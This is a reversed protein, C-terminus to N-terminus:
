RLWLYRQSTDRLLTGDWPFHKKNPSPTLTRAPIPTQTQTPTPSPAVGAIVGNSLGDDSWLGGENRAGVTVYYPQGYALNLGTRTMSTTASSVYTWAVVDRAGPTTGIAYRYQTIPSEPDSSSWSTSLTTLAGDGSATLAPKTPPTKDSVFGAYDVNFTTNSFSAVRM